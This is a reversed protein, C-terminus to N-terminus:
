GSHKMQDDGLDSRCILLVHWQGCIDQRELFQASMVDVRDAALVGREAFHDAMERLHADAHRASEGRRRLCISVKQLVLAQPVRIELSERVPHRRRRSAPPLRHASERVPYERRRKRRPEFGLDRRCEFLHAASAVDSDCHARRRSGFIQGIRREGALLFCEEIHATAVCQELADM